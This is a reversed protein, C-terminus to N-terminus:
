CFFWTTKLLFKCSEFNEEKHNFGILIFTEESRWGEKGKHCLAYTVLLSLREKQVTSISIGSQM